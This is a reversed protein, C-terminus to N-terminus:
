LKFLFLEIQLPNKKFVKCKKKFFSLFEIMGGPDWTNGGKEASIGALSGREGKM